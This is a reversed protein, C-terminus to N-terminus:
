HPPEGTFPTWDAITGSPRSPPRATVVSANDRNHFCIFPHPHLPQHITPPLVNWLLANPFLKKLYTYKLIWIETKRLLFLFERTSRFYISKPLVWALSLNAFLKSFLSRLLFAHSDRTLFLNFIEKLGKNIQFSSFRNTVLIVTEREWEKQAQGKYIGPKDM